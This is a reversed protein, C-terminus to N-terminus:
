TADGCFTKLVFVSNTNTLEGCLIVDIWVHLMQLIVYEQAMPIWYTYVDIYIYRYIYIYIYM